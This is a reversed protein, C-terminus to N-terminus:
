VRHFTLMLRAKGTLEYYEVMVRHKGATLPVEVTSVQFPQMCWCGAILKGDIFLRVGDDAGLDFSWVGTTFEVDRTYRASFRDPDLSNPDPSGTGWNHDIKTEAQCLVRPPLLRENGYYEATWAGTEPCEAETQSSMSFEVRASSDREYYDLRIEHDGAPLPITVSEKGFDRDCWCGAAWRGDIYLGVGDDAGIVFTYYGKPLNLTKTWRASFGDVLDATPGGRAWIHSPGEEEDCLLPAGSLETNAWYEARWGRDIEPCIEANAPPTIAAAAAASGSSVATTPSGWM